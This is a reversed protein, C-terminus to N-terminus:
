VSNVFMDVRRAEAQRNGASEVFIDVRRAESYWETARDWTRIQQGHLCFGDSDTM